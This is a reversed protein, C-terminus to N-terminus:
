HAVWCIEVGLGSGIRAGSLSSGVVRGVVTVCAGVPGYQNSSSWAEVSVLSWKAGKPCTVVVKEKYWSWFLPEVTELHNLMKLLWVM